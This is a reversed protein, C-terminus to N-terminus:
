DAKVLKSYAAKALKSYSIIKDTKAASCSSCTLQKLYAAKALKLYSIIKDTEAASCSLNIQLDVIKQVHM